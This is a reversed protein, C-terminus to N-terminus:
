FGADLGERELKAIKELRAEHRGGEFPTELWIRVMRRALGRNVFSSGLVLVNADNHLRSSRAAEVDYCAAARIGRIKNAAIASGVGVMDILVGRDCISRAVKEAVALAVEPYDKPEGEAMGCDVVSHGLESIYGALQRKLVLGRHDSGIAVRLPAAKRGALREEPAPSRAELRVAGTDGLVERVKRAVREEIDGEMTWGGEVPRSLPGDNGASPSRCFIRSHTPRSPAAPGEWSLPAPTGDAVVALRAISKEGAAVAAFVANREACITLGYSRNEVNCGTYVGGSGGLVAAGVRYGSYPAYAHAMAETAKDVLDKDTM